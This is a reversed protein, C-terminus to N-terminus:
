EKSNKSALHEALKKPSMSALSEIKGDNNTNHGGPMTAQTRAGGDAKSGVIIPAFVKNAVFEKELDAVSMASPKGDPGLIRDIINGDADFETKIRKELHPIGLEPSKFLKTAIDSVLKDRKSSLLGDKLKNLETILENERDSYKKKWSNEIAEVDGNKRSVGTKLEEIQAELESVKKRTEKHQNAENEKAQRLATIAEDDGEIKAIYADGKLEYEAKLDASLKEFEEKTIKRKMPDGIGLFTLV